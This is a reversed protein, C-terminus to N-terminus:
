DRAGCGEPLSPPFLPRTVMCLALRQLVWFGPAVLWIWSILNIALCHRVQPAHVYPQGHMYSKCNGKINKCKMLAVEQLFPWCAGGEEKGKQPTHCTPSPGVWTDVKHIPSTDVNWPIQKYTCTCTLPMPPPTQQLPDLNIYPIDGLQNSSTWGYIWGFLM